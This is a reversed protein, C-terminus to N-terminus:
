KKNQFSKLMGRLINIESPTVAIRGYLRRLRTMLHKPNEPDLFKSEIMATELHQYYGEMVNATVVEEESVDDVENSDALLAVRCEYSMIQVASAVNLSSYEPNTPIHVLHQCM